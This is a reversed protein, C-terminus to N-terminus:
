KKIYILVQVANSCQLASATSFVESQSVVGACKGATMRCQGWSKRTEFGLKRCSLAKPPTKFCASPFAAGSFRIWTPSLEQGEKGAQRGTAGAPPWTVARSRGELRRLPLPLPWVKGAAGAAASAAAGRSLCRGHGAVPAAPARLPLAPAWLPVSLAGRGGSAGRAPAPGAPAPCAPAAGGGRPSRGGGAASGARGRHPRGPPTPPAALPSRRGRAMFPRARAARCQPVPRGAPPHPLPSRRCSAPAAGGGGGGGGGTAGPLTEGAPPPGARGLMARGPASPLHRAPSARPAPPSRPGSGHPAGAAAAGAPGAGGARPAPIRRQGRPESAARAHAQYLNLATLHRISLQKKLLWEM